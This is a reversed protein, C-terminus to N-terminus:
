PAFRYGVGWVTQIHRPKMPDRELKARLRRVHVTVTSADGVSYGWVRELLDSRSVVQNPRRVLFALLDFERPTLGIEMGALRVSRAHSDVVIDGVSITEPEGDTAV